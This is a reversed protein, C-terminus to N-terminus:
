KCPNSHSYQPFLHRWGNLVDCCSPLHIKFIVSIWKVAIQLVSLTQSPRKPIESLNPTPLSQNYFCCNCRILPVISLYFLAFALSCYILEHLHTTFTVIKIVFIKYGLFIDFCLSFYTIFFLRFSTVSLAKQNFSLWKNPFFSSFKKIHYYLADKATVRNLVASVLFM